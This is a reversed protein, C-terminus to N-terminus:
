IELRPLTIQTNKALTSIEPLEIELNIKPILTEIDPHPIEDALIKVEDNNLEVGLKAFSSKIVSTKISNIQTDYWDKLNKIMNDLKQQLSSLSDQIKKLIPKSKIELWKTGKDINNNITNELEEIYDNIKDVYKDILKNLKEIFENVKIVVDAIKSAANSFDAM